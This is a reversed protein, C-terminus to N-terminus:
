LNPYGSTTIANPLPRYCNHICAARWMSGLIIGRRVAEGITDNAYNRVDALLDHAANVVDVWAHGTLLDGKYDRELDHSLCQLMDEVAEKKIYMLPILTVHDACKPYETTSLVLCCNKWDASLVPFDVQNTYDALINWKM